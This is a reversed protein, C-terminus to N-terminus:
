KTSGIKCKKRPRNKKNLTQTVLKRKRMYRGPEFKQVLQGNRPRLCVRKNKSMVSRVLHTKTGNNNKEGSNKEDEGKPDIEESNPDIEESNPDIEESNCDVQDSCNINTNDTEIKTASPQLGANQEALMIATGNSNTITNDAELEISDPQLQGNKEATVAGNSNSCNTNEMNDTKMKVTDPQGQKNKEEVTMVSSKLHEVPKEDCHEKIGNTASEHIAKGGNNVATIVDVKERACTKLQDRSQFNDAMKQSNNSVVISSNPLVGSNLKIAERLLNDIVVNKDNNVYYSSSKIAECLLKYCSLVVRIQEDSQRLNSFDLCWKCGPNLARKRKLCTRCVYHQCYGSSLPDVILGRCVRCTLANRLLPLIEMLQDWSSRDEGCLLFKWAQVYLSTASANEM